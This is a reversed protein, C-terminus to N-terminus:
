GYKLSIDEVIDAVDQCKDLAEELNDYIEKLKIIEIPENNEFLEAIANRYIKDGDHEYRKINYCHDRLKNRDKQKKLINVLLYIEQSSSLLIKALEIMYGTPKKVKFLILRESIGDVYDLVEDISSTLKSIDERDLPTVFTQSLITYLKHSIEDGNHELESILQKKEQLSEGFDTIIEMLISTSKVLNTGQ